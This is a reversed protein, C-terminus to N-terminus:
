ASQWSERLFALDEYLKMMIKHNDPSACVISSVTFTGPLESFGPSISAHGARRHRQAYLQDRIVVATAEWAKGTNGTM